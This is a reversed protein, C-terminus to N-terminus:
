VVINHGGVADAGVATAVGDACCQVIVVVLGIHIFQHREKLIVLLSYHYFPETAFLAVSGKLKKTTVETWYGGTTWYDDTSRGKVRCIPPVVVSNRM